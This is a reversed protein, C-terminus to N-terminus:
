YDIGEELSDLSKAFRHSDVCLKKDSAILRDSLEKDTM